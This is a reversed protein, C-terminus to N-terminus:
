RAGPQAAKHTFRAGIAGGAASFFLMFLALGAANILVMAAAGDPTLWFQQQATFSAALDPNSSGFFNAYMKANARVFERQSEAMLAGEHLAFRQVLLTVTEAIVAIASAFIGLLAGIRWGMKGNPLTRTRRRYISILAMGGAIGWMAELGILASLLGTPLAVLAALIIAERWQIAYPNRAASRQSVAANEPPPSDELAEFRLQPAGCNPCFPASSNITAGCRHCVQEM